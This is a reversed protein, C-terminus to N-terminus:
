SVHCVNKSTNHALFPTMKQGFFALIKQLDECNKGCFITGCIVEQPSFSKMTRLWHHWVLSAKFLQAANQKGSVFCLWLWYVSMLRVTFWHTIIWYCFFTWNLLTALWLSVVPIVGPSPWIDLINSILKRSYNQKQLLLCSSYTLPATM